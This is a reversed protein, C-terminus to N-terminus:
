RKERPDLKKLKYFYKDVFKSPLIILAIPIILYIYKEFNLKNIKYGNIRVKLDIVRYKKSKRKNYNRDRRLLILAEPINYFKLNNSMARFWLDYDQVKKFREDYMGIRVIENKRYMVSPHIIPNVKPMIKVIEDNSIPMKKYEELENRENIYKGFSGIITIQPNNILYQVQKEIRTLDSVDDADMRAIYEGNSIEILKNLNKTLGLNKTNQIFKVNKKGQIVKKIKKVTNDTSNDDVLLIEINKYTQNLISNISEEIYKECNYASIIVSVLPEKM